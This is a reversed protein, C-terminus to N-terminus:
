FYIKKILGWFFNWGELEFRQSTIGDYFYFPSMQCVIMCGVGVKLSNYHAVSNYIRGHVFIADFVFYEVAFRRSVSLVQSFM